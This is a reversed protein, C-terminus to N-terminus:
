LSVNNYLVILLFNWEIHYSKLLALYSFIALLLLNKFFHSSVATLIEAWDSCKETRTRLALWLLNQSKLNIKLCRSGSDPDPNRIRIWAWISHPDLRIRIRFVPYLYTNWVTALTTANLLPCLVCCCYKMNHNRWRSFLLLWYKAPLINSHETLFRPDKWYVSEFHKCQEM